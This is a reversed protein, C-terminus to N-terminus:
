SQGPSGDESRRATAVGAILGAVLLASAVSIMPYPNGCTDVGYQCQVYPVATGVLWLGGM